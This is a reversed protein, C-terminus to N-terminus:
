SRWSPRMLRAVSYQSSSMPQPRVSGHELEVVEAAAVAVRDRQVTRKPASSSGPDLRARAIDKMGGDAGITM